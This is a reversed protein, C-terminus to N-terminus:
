MLLTKMDEGVRLEEQREMTESRVWLGSPRACHKGPFVHGSAVGAIQKHKM